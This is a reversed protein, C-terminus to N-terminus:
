LIQNRPWLENSALAGASSTIASSRCWAWTHDGQGGSIELDPMAEVCFRVQGWYHGKVSSRTVHIQLHQQSTYRTAGPNAASLGIAIAPVM